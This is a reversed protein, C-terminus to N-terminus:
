NNFGWNVELTSSDWKWWIWLEDVKNESDIIVWNNLNDINVNEEEKKWCSNLSIIILLLITIKKFM